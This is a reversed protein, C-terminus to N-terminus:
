GGKGGVAQERIVALVTLPLPDVNRVVARARLNWSAGGRQGPASM